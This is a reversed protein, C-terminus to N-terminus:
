GVLEVDVLEADPNNEMFRVVEDLANQAHSMTSSVVAIGLTLTRHVDQTDVEAVAINFKNRVRAVTSRAVQRKDKLSNAHHVRYTLRASQVYMIVGGKKSDDYWMRAFIDLAYVRM